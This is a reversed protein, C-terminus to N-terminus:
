GYRAQLALSRLVRLHLSNCCSFNAIDVAGAVLQSSSRTGGWGGAGGGGDIQGQLKWIYAALVMSSYMLKRASQATTSLRMVKSSLGSADEM